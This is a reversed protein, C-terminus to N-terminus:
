QLAADITDLESGIQSLAIEEALLQQELKFLVATDTEIVAATRLRKIKESRLAWEQEFADIKRELRRQHRTASRVLSLDSNQDSHFTQKSGGAYYCIPFNDGLDLVKKVLPHQPGPARKPVHEFLYILIDLIRAFGDNSVAGEGALAELLCTTFTSYPIGTYSYEGEHCSAVVVRGSGTVLVNLLNPPLPSRSFAENPSQSKPVGGAHCCDLLVVLKRAKVAEIKTTFESGSIATHSRQDPDYGYPVLFYGISEGSLMIRGGHGSYYVIVTADPDSNAQETLRDFAQFISQRDANAETLLQVQRPPFSARGPDVLMQFLATADKITVPLDAGVGILLAYGNHFLKDSRM